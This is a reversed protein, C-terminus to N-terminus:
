RAAATPCLDLTLRSLRAIFRALRRTGFRRKARQVVRYDADRVAFSVQRWGTRRALAEAFTLPPPPARRRTVSSRKM